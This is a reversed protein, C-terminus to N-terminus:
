QQHQHPPPLIRGSQHDGSTALQGIAQDRVIHL